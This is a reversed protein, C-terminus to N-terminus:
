VLDAAQGLEVRPFDLCLLQREEGKPAAGALPAGIVLSAMLAVFGLILGIKGRSM